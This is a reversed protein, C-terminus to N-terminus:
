KKLFVMLRDTIEKSILCHDQRGANAFEEPTMWRTEATTAEFAIFDQRDTIEAAFMHLPKVQKRSASIFTFKGLDFLRAINTAKLGVEEEGERLATGLLSEHFSEDAYRLDDERMDCWNDNIHLRRTGKAIQFAPDGLYAAEASPKMVLIHLNQEIWMFPLIGVKTVPTDLKNEGMLPIIDFNIQFKSSM